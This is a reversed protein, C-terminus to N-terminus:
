GILCLDDADHAVAVVNLSNCANFEVSNKGTSAIELSESSSGSM